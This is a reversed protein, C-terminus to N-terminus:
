NENIASLPAIQINSPPTNAAGNAAIPPASNETAALAAADKGTQVYDQTASATELALAGAAADLMRRPELRRSSLQVRTAAAPASRQRFLEALRRRRRPSAAM